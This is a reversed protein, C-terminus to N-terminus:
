ASEVAPAPPPGPAPAPPSRPARYFTACLVPVVIMTLVRGFAGRVVLQKLKPSEGGAPWYVVAADHLKILSQKQLDEVQLFAEIAGEATPVKLASL